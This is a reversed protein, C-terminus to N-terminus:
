IHRISIYQNSIVELEIADFVLKLEPHVHFCLLINLSRALPLGCLYPFELLKTSDILNLDVAKPRPFVPLVSFVPRHVLVRYTV